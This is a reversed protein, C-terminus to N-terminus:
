SFVAGDDAGGANQHVMKRPHFDDGAVVLAKSPPLSMAFLSAVPEIFVAMIMAAEALAQCGHVMTIIVVAIM